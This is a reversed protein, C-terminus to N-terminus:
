HDEIPGPNTFIKAATASFDDFGLIRLTENYGQDQRCLPCPKTLADEGNYWMNICEECGVISKCCRMYILLPKMPISHCIKCKLVDSLAKYLGLPVNMEKNVQLIQSVDQKLDSISKNINELM